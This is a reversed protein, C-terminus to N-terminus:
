VLHKVSGVCEVVSIHVLPVLFAGATQLKGAVLFRALEIEGVEGKGDARAEGGGVYLHGAAGGAPHYKPV